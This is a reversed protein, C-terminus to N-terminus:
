GPKKGYFNVVFFLDLYFLCWVVVRLWVTQGKKESMQIDSIVRFREFKGAMLDLDPAVGGNKQVWFVRVSNINFMHLGNTM